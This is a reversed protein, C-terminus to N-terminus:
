LSQIIALLLFIVIADAIVTSLLLPGIGIFSGDKKMGSFVARAIIIGPIAGVGTFSIIICITILIGSFGLKVYDGFTVAPRNREGVLVTRGVEFAFGLVSSILTELTMSAYKQAEAKARRQTHGFNNSETNQYDSNSNTRNYNERQSGKLKEAFQDYEQRTGPDRLIEYAEGIEIFKEHANPLTCVDPHYQKAKDRFTKKIEELTANKSVGLISYYDKIDALTEM